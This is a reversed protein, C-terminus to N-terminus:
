HTNDDLIYHNNSQEIHLNLTTAIIQVIEDLENNNFTATLRYQNIHEHAAEIPTNYIKTLVEFVKSLPTDDFTLTHNLWFLTAPDRHSSTIQQITNSHRFLVAEEGQTLRIQTTDHNMVGAVLVSGSTVTVTVQASDKPAKINFQTGLVKIFGQDIQVIFPHSTDRQVNFYAEGELHVTRHHQSFDKAYRLTTGKNLIVISHDTLTDCRTTNDDAMLIIPHSPLLWQIALYSGVLILLSAALAMIYHSSRWSPLQKTETLLPAVKEWAADHDVAVPPPTLKGAELWLQEMRELEQRHSPAAALWQEIAERQATDAEGLLYRMLLAHDIHQAKNTM